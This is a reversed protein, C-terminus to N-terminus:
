SNGIARLSGSEVEWIRSAFREIFYRDHVVALVTGEFSALAEEFHERASIDLHNLPEDLM